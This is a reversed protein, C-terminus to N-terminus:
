SPAEAYKYQLMNLPVSYQLCCSCSALLSIGMVVDHREWPSGAMRRLLFYYPLM